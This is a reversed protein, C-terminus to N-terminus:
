MTEFPGIRTFLYRTAWAQERTMHKSWLLPFRLQSLDELKVVAYDDRWDITLVHSGYRNETTM